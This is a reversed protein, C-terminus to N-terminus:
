ESTRVENASGEVEQAVNCLAGTAVDKFCRGAWLVCKEHVQHGDVAQM